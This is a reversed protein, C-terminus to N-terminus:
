CAVPAYFATKFAGKGILRNLLAVSEGDTRVKLRERVEVLDVLIGERDFDANFAETGYGFVEANADVAMDIFEGDVNFAGPASIDITYIPNAENCGQLDIADDMIVIEGGKQFDLVVVEDVNPAHPHDRPEVDKLAVFAIRGFAVITHMGIAISRGRSGREDPGIPIGLAEMETWTAIVPVPHMPLYLEDHVGAGIRPDPMAGNWREGIVAYRGPAVTYGTETEVFAPM